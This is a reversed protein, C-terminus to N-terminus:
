AMLAEQGHQRWARELREILAEPRIAPPLPPESEAPAPPAPTLAAAVAPEPAASTPEDATVAAPQTGAEAPAPPAAVPA